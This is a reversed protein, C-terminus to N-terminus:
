RYDEPREMREKAEFEIVNMMTTEGCWPARRDWVVWAMPMASGSAAVTRGKVMGPRAALPFFYAPRAFDDAQWFRRCRTKTEAFGLRTLLAVATVTPMGVFHEALDNILSFPPNTIITAPAVPPKWIAFADEEADLKFGPLPPWRKIDTAWVTHGAERLALVM